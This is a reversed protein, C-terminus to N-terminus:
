CSWSQSKGGCSKLHNTLYGKTCFDAGCDSCVFPKEGRHVFKHHRILNFYGKFQLGCVDCKKPHSKQHRKFSISDNFVDGCFYCAFTMTNGDCKHQGGKGRTYGARNKTTKQIKTMIEHKGVNGTIYRFKLVIFAYKRQLFRLILQSCPAGRQTRIRIDHMVSCVVQRIRGDM